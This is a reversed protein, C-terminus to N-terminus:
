RRHDRIVAGRGRPRRQDRGHAVAKGHGRVHVYRSPRDIRRVAVPVDRTVVWGSRYTRSRYWVGGDYRWYVGSSYFVPYDYDAIVQVGPSVYVLEPASYDVRAGVRAESYCAGLAISAIFLVHRLM